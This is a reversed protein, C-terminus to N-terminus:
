QNPGRLLQAARELEDAERLLQAALARRKRARRLIHEAADPPPPLTPATRLADRRQQFLAISKSSM